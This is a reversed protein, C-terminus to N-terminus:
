KPMSQHMEQKVREFFACYFEKIGEEDCIILEERPEVVFNDYGYWDQLIEIIQTEEMAGDLTAKDLRPVKIVVNGGPMDGILM